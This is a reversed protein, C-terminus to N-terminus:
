IMFWYTYRVMLKVLHHVMMNKHILIIHLECSPNRAAERTPRKEMFRRLDAGPGAKGAMALEAKAVSSRALTSQSRAPSTYTYFVDGNCDGSLVQMECIDGNCDGSLVQM